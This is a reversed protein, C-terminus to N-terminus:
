QMNSSTGIQSKYIEIARYSTLILYPFCSLLSIMYCIFMGNGWPVLPLPQWLVGPAEVWGRPGASWVYCNRSAGLFIHFCTLNRSSKPLFFFLGDRNLSNWQLSIVDESHYPPPLICRSRGLHLKNSAFTYFQGGWSLAMSCQYIHGKEVHFMHFPSNRKKIASHLQLSLM